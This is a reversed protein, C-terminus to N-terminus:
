DSQLAYSTVGFERDVLTSGFSDLGGGGLEAPMNAAYLGAALSRTRIQEILDPPIAGLKEVTAEHPILEKETFAKVTDVIMEHEASLEFDM